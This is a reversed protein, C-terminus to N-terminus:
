YITRINYRKTCDPCYWQGEPPVMIGVCEFHFWEIQCDPADCGIMESVNDHPSQCICYLKDDPPTIVQMPLAGVGVLPASIPTTNTVISSGTHSETTHHGNMHYGSNNLHSSTTNEFKYGAGSDSDYDSSDSPTERNKQRNKATSSSNGSGTNFTLRMKKSMMSTGAPNKMGGSKKSGDNKKRKQTKKKASKTNQLYSIKSIKTLFNM